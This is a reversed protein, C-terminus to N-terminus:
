SEKPHKPALGPLLVEPVAEVRPCPIRKMMQLRAPIMLNNTFLPDLGLTSGLHEEVEVSWVRDAGWGSEQAKVGKGWAGCGAEQM